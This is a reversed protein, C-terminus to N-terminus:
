ALHRGIGLEFTGEGAVEVRFAGDEAGNEEIVIGQVGGDLSELGFIEEERM